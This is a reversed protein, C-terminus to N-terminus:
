IKMKKQNIDKKILFEIYQSKSIKKEECLKVLEKDLEINISVSLNKRQDDKKIKPRGMYNFNEVFIYFNKYFLM